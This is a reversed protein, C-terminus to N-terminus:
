VCLSIVRSGKIAIFEIYGLSDTLSISYPVTRVDEIYSVFGNPLTIQSGVDLSKLDVKDHIISCILYQRQISITKFAFSKDGTDATFTPVIVKPAENTKYFIDVHDIKGRKCAEAAERIYDDVTVENYLKFYTNFNEKSIKSGTTLTLFEDDVSKVIFQKESLGQTMVRYAYSGKEQNSPTFDTGAILFGILNICCISDGKRLNNFYTRRSM